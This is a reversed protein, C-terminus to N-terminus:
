GSMMAGIARRRVGTTPCAVDDRECGRRATEEIRAGFLASPAVGYGIEFDPQFRYFGRDPRFSCFM